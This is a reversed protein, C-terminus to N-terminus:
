RNSDLDGKEKRFKKIEQVLESFRQQTSQMYKASYVIKKIAWYWWIFCITFFVIVAVDLVIDRINYMKFYHLVAITCITVLPLIRGLWDWWRAERKTTETFHEVEKDNM